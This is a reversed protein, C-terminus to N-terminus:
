YGGGINEISQNKKKMYKISINLYNGSDNESSGNPNIQSIGLNNRVKNFIDIAASM